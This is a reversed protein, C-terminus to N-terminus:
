AVVVKNRGQQKAQYLASDAARVLGDRSKGAAPFESIGISITVPRPVGPFQFQEVM